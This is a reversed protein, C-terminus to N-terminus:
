LFSRIRKVDSIEAATNARYLVDFFEAFHSTPEICIMLTPSAIRDNPVASLLAADRLRHHFASRDGIDGASVAVAAHSPTVRRFSRSLRRHPHRLNRRATHHGPKVPESARGFVRAPAFHAM